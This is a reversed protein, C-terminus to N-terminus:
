ASNCPFSSFVVGLDANASPPRRDLRAGKFTVGHDSIKGRVEYVGPAPTQVLKDKPTRVARSFSLGSKQSIEPNYSGPGASTQSKRVDRTTRGMYGGSLSPRKDVNYAGPGLSVAVKPERWRGKLSPGSDAAITSPVNYADPAPQRVVRVRPARSAKSFSVPRPSM